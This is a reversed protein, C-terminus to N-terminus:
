GQVTCKEWSATKKFKTEAPTKRGPWEEMDNIGRMQPLARCRALSVVRGQVPMDKPYFARYEQKATATTDQERGQYRAANSRLHERSWEVNSEPCKAKKATTM